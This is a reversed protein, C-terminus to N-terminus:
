DKVPFVNQSLNAAMGTAFTLRLVAHYCTEVDSSAGILTHLTAGQVLLALIFDTVWSYDHLGQRDHEVLLVLGSISTNKDLTFHM